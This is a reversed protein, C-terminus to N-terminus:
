SRPTKRQRSPYNRTPGITLERIIEGTAADSSTVDTDHILM